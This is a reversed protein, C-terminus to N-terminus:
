QFKMQIHFGVIVDETGWKGDAPGGSLSLAGTMNERLPATYIVGLSTGDGGFHDDSRTLTFVMADGEIAADSKKLGVINHNQYLGGAKSGFNLTYNNGLDYTSALQGAWSNKPGSLFFAISLIFVFYNRM